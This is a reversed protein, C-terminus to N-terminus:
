CPRMEGLAPPSVRKEEQIMMVKEMILTIRTTIKITRQDRMMTLTSTPM